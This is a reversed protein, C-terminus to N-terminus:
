RSAILSVTFIHNQCELKLISNNQEATRKMSQLGFGHLNKNEKSTYSTMPNQLKGCNLDKGTTNRIEIFFYETTQKLTVQIKRKQSDPIKICAEIANDLANAFFLCIDMPKWSLGYDLVGDIQFQVNQQQMQKKKASFICDLIEDGTLIDPSLTQVDHLLHKLYENAERTKNEEMLMNLCVLNNQIDHRFRRTEEQTEKYQQFHALEAELFSEQYEKLNKYYIGMRNKLLFLPFSIFLVMMVVAMAPQVISLQANQTNVSFIIMVYMSTIYLCYFTILWKEKKEFPLFIGDKFFCHSLYYYLSAFIILTMLNLFLDEKNWADATSNVLQYGPIIYYGGMDCIMYFCISATFLTCVAKLSRQLWKGNCGCVFLALYFTGFVYTTGIRNEWLMSSCEDALTLLILLWKKKQNWIIGEDFFCHSLLIFAAIMYFSATANLLHWITYSLLKM